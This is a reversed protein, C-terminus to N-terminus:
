LHLRVRLHLVRCVHQNQVERNGVEEEDENANGEGGAVIDEHVPWKAKEPILMVTMAMDNESWLIQKLHKQM